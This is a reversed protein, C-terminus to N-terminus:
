DSAFDQKLAEVLQLRFFRVADEQWLKKSRAIAKFLASHNPMSGDVAAVLARVAREETEDIIKLLEDRGQM